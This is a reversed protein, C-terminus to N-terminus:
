VDATARGVDVRRPRSWASCGSSAASADCARVRWAWRGAGLAAPRWSTGEVLVDIAPRAPDCEALPAGACGTDMQVQYRVGRAPGEWALEPLVGVALVAGHSPRRPTPAELAVVEADRAAPAASCAAIVPM